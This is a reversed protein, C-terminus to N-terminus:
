ATLQHVVYDIFCQTVVHRDDPTYNHLANYVGCPCLALLLEWAGHEYRKRQLSDPTHDGGTVKPM